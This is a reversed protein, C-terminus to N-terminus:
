RAGCAAPLHDPHRGRRGANLIRQIPGVVKPADPIYVAGDPDCFVGQMDVVIIATRKTNITWRVPVSGM